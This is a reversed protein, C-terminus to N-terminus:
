TQPSRFSPSTTAYRTQSHTLMKTLLNKEPSATIIILIGISPECHYGRSQYISSKSSWRLCLLGIQKTHIVKGHYHNCAAIFLHECRGLRKRSQIDQIPDYFM